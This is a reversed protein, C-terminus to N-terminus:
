GHDQAELKESLERSARRNGFYGRILRRLGRWFHGNVATVIADVMEGSVMGNTMKAIARLPMNYIFLLNLSSEGEAALKTLKRDIAGSIMRALWLHATALDGITSTTTIVGPTVVVANEQPALMQDIEEADAKTVDGSFYHSLNVQSRPHVGEVQWDETLWLDRSSSGVEIRYRGSPIVWDNAAPDWARFSYDDFPITVSQSEGPALNIKTFGKLERKPHYLATDASAIYLQAIEAGARKGTNTLVFHAGGADVKLDRYEFSTYSLGFGFPLAVPKEVADYYRYGVYLSEKYMANVDASPFDEGFPVDAYSLPKTEALKGSPNVVGILVDCLASASAEGTLSQDILASVHQQWSMEVPAGASLVAVIPTDTKALAEILAVQNAPLAMDDRDKGESEKAEDLGVFVLAVDSQTALQAAEAILAEDPQGLRDFGQAYGVVNLLKGAVQNFSEVNEANVASSGAGQYRPKDAFDGIIAVKTTATLPLLESENKLLVMSAEAAKRAVQHHKEFDAEGSSQMTRVPTDAVIKLYEAVRDDLVKEDLRGSNVADILEKPGAMGTSPMELNSGAKVGEIHDNDGGWDTIVIGDFGWDDRLTKQLLQSDENAYTGNIQNYSSMIAKPHGEKVAIEFNTLYLEHLARQDVVSNSAMRRLEQSNVAFHKPCAMTGTSQVGRIYGAAMRGALIPDESYYEFNRGCLPNKQINMAPGLIGQVDATICEEGIAQGVAATIKPDWSNALAVGSPFSTAKISGNLGLHDAAGEQKRLGSPGDSLALAPINASNIGFTDFTTRGSLLAAKQELTLQLKQNTM